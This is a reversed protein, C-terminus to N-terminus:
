MRGRMKFKVSYGLLPLEKNPQAKFVFQVADGSGRINIKQKVLSEGTDFPAPYEDPLFGRRLPKYLQIERGKGTVGTNGYIEGDADSSAYDWRAQFLCGSPYDYIFNGDDDMDLVQTETKEFYFTAQTISKSHAFKGLHEPGSIIYGTQDVGYDKFTTDTMRGFSYRRLSGVNYETPYYVTNSISFPSVIRNDGANAQPYFANLRTDYILASQGKKVPWWQCQHQAEDYVGCMERGSFTRIFYSRITDETIDESKLVDFENAVLRIIGNNSFYYVSDGAVIVSRVSGIGRDTVKQVNYATAKFGGDPNSVYWVGNGAFVLMGSRFAELTKINRTDELLITGGDTDLVDPIDASTPDNSQYCRGADNPSILVQSYYL